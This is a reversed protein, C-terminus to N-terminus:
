PTHTPQSHQTHPPPPPVEKSNTPPLHQKNTLEVKFCVTHGRPTAQLNASTQPSVSHWVAALVKIVARIFAPQPPTAHPVDARLGWGGHRGRGKVGATNKEKEGGKQLAGEVTSYGPREGAVRSTVGQASSMSHLRPEPTSLMQKSPCHSGAHLERSASHSHPLDTLTAHSFNSACQPLPVTRRDGM